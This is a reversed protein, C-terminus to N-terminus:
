NHCNWFSNKFQKSYLEKNVRELKDMLANYWTKYDKIDKIENLIDKIRKTRHEVTNFYEYQKNM